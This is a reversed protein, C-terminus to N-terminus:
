AADDNEMSELVAAAALAVLGALVMYIVYARHIAGWLMVADPSLRGDLLFAYFVVGYLAWLAPPLVLGRERPWRRWLYAAIGLIAILGIINGIQFWYTVTALGSM